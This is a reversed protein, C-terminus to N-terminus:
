FKNIILGFWIIFDKNMQILETGHYCRKHKILFVVSRLEQLLLKEHIIKASKRINESAELPQYNSWHFCRQQQWPDTLDFAACPEVHELHWTSGYHAWSMYPKFQFKLWKKFFHMDCGLLNLTHDSKAVGKLAYYIRVRLNNSIRM